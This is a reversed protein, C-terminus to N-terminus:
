EQLARYQPVTLGLVGAIIVDHQDTLRQLRAKAAKLRFIQKDGGWNYAKARSSLGRHEVLQHLGVIATASPIQDDIALWEMVWGPWEQRIKRGGLAVAEFATPHFDILTKSGDDGRGFRRVSIRDGSVEFGSGIENHARQRFGFAMQLAKPIQVRGAEWADYIRLQDAVDDAHLPVVTHDLKVEDLYRHLADSHLTTTEHEDDYIDLFGREIEPEDGSYPEGPIVRDFTRHYIWRHPGVLDLDTRAVLESRSGRTGWAALGALGAAAGLGLLTGDDRRM